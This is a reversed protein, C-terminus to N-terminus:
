SHLLGSYILWIFITKFAFGSILYVKESNLHDFKRGNSIQAYIKNWFIALYILTVAASWYVYASVKINGYVQGYILYLLNVVPPTLSCVIGSWFAIDKNPSKMSRQSLLLYGTASSIIIFVFIMLLSAVDYVSYVLGLVVMTLALSLGYELWRLKFVGTKLDQLYNKKCLSLQLVCILVSIFLLLEVLFVLSVQFIKNSSYSLTQSGSISSAIPNVSLHNVYIPVSNPTSLVLIAFMQLVFLIAISKTLLSLAKESDSYGGEKTNRDSLVSNKIM